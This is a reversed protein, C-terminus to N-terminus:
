SLWAEVREPSGHCEPPAENWLFYAYEWLLTKNIHDAKAAASVLDNSLVATLFSGPPIRDEIYRRMGGQMHPPLSSYDTM